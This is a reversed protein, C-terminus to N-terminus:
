SKREQGGYKEFFWAPYRFERGLLEPALSAQREAPIVGSLLPIRISHWDFRTNSDTLSAFTKLEPLLPQLYPTLDAGQAVALYIGARLEAPPHTRSILPKTDMLESTFLVLTLIVGGVMPVPEDPDWIAHASFIDAQFEFPWNLATSTVLQYGLKTEARLRMKQLMHGLSVHGLEHGVVSAIAGGLLLSYTEGLSPDTILADRVEVPVVSFPEGILGYQTALWQYYLWEDEDEVLFLLSVAEDLSLFLNDYLFVSEYAASANWRSAQGTAYPDFGTYYVDIKGSVPVQKGPQYVAPVVPINSFEPMPVVSTNYLEVLAQILEEYMKVGSTSVAEGVVQSDLQLLTNREGATAPPLQEATLDSPVDAEFFSSGSPSNANTGPSQKASELAINVTTVQSSSVIVDKYPAVFGELFLAVRYKGTPIDSFSHPTSFSTTIGNLTIRAGSPTSNVQLTGASKRVIVLTPTGRSSLRLTKGSSLSVAETLKLYGTKSFVVEDASVPVNQLLFHGEKDTFSSKGGATVSVGSVPSYGEPAGLLPDSASGPTYEYVFGEISAVKAEPVSTSPAPPSPAPPLGGGGGGCASFVFWGLLFVM